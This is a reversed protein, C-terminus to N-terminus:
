QATVIDEMLFEVINYFVGSTHDGVYAVYISQGPQIILAGEKNYSNMDAEAKTYWRDIETGVAITPNSDYAEVEAVNGSGVSVNVATVTSGGSTYSGSSNITYYCSANPLATGGAPDVIQHRIYTVVMNRSSSTNKIHLGIVTGSALTATGSVEYAQEEDKSIIHQYPFSESAVSLRNGKDVAAWRGNGIGSEIKM